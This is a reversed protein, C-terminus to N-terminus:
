TTGPRTIMYSYLYRNAFLWGQVHIPWTFYLALSNLSFARLYWCLMWGCTLPLLTVALKHRTGVVLSYLVKAACVGVISAGCGYIINFIESEM